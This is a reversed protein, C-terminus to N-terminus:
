SRRKRHMMPGLLLLLLPFAFGPEPVGSGGGGSKTTLDLNFEYSAGGLAPGDIFANWSLMYDGAMLMGSGSGNPTGSTDFAAVTGTPGILSWSAGVGAAVEFGVDLAVSYSYNYADTLSLMVIGTSAANGTSGTNASVNGGGFYSMPTVTTGQGAAFEGIDLNGNFSGDSTNDQVTGPVTVSRSVSNITVVAHSSLMGIILISGAILALGRRSSLFSANM